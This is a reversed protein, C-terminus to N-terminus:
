NQHAISTQRSGVLLTHAECNSLGGEPPANSWFADSMWARIPSRDFISDKRLPDSTHSTKASGSASLSTAQQPTIQSTIQWDRYTWSSSFADANACSVSFMLPDSTSSLRRLYIRAIERKSLKHVSFSSAYTCPCPGHYGVSAKALRHMKHRRKDNATPSLLAQILLSAKLLKQQAEQPSFLVVHGLCLLAQSLM